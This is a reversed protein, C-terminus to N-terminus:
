DSNLQVTYNSAYFFSIQTKSPCYENVSIHTLYCEPIFIDSNYLHSHCSAEQHPVCIQCSPLSHLLFCGSFTLQKQRCTSLVHFDAFILKHINLVLGLGPNLMEYVV